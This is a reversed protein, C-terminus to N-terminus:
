LGDELPVNQPSPALVWPSWQQALTWKRSQSTAVASTTDPSLYRSLAKLVGEPSRTSKLLLPRTQEALDM